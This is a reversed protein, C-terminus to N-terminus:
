FVERAPKQGNVLSIIGSCSFLSKCRDSLSSPRNDHVGHLGSIIKRGDAGRPIPASRFSKRWTGRPIGHSSQRFFVSDLLHRTPYDSRFVDATMGRVIGTELLEICGRLRANKERHPTRM